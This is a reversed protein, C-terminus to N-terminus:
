GTVGCIGETQFGDGATTNTPVCEECTGGSPPPTCPCTNACTNGTPGPDDTTLLTDNCNAPSCTANSGGKIYAAQTVFSRVQLGKLNLKQKKM